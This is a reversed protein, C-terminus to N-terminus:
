KPPTILLDNEDSYFRSQKTMRQESSVILTQIRSPLKEYTSYAIAAKRIIEYTKTDVVSQLAIVRNELKKIDYM